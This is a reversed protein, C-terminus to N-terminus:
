SLCWTLAVLIAATVAGCLLGYGAYRNKVRLYHVYADLEDPERM